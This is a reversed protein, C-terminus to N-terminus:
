LDDQRAQEVIAVFEAATVVRPRQLHDRLALLDKDGTVLYDADGEIGAAILYDDKRDRLIAPIPESVRSLVEGIELLRSMFAAVDAPPIRDRLYPKTSLTRELEVILEEPLVLTAVGDFILGMARSVVRTHDAPPLLYSVLVNADFLVRM